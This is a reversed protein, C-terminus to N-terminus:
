NKLAMSRGASRIMQRVQPPLIQRLINLISFQSIAIARATKLHLGNIGHQYAFESACAGAKKFGRRWMSTAIVLYGKGIDSGAILGVDKTSLTRVFGSYLTDCETIVTDAMSFSGQKSHSRAQVLVKDIHIFRYKEAMRFWLDYDQTSRLAENFGGFEEFAVRPILLTCGHLASNMTLWGRFQEPPIQKLHVPIAKAVDDSFISYDSYIISKGHASNLLANIQREIKDKSYLDDHSLWSFYEGKMESTALNLASAVGGNPKHYYRIKEGYSKAIFETMGKDDSGDNIVLIEINKYKQALASDIAAALYLEGNFVPIIISVIPNEV